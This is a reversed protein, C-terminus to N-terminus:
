TVNHEIRANDYMNRGASGNVEASSRGSPLPLASNQHEATRLLRLSSSFLPSFPLFLFLFSLFLFSLFPFAPAATGASGLPGDASSPTDRLGLRLALLQLGGDGRQLRLEASGFIRQMCGLRRRGLRRRRRLRPARTTRARARALLTAPNRKRAGALVRHPRPSSALAHHPPSAALSVSLVGDLLYIVAASRRM